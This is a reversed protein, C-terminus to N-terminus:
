FSVLVRYFGNTQNAPVADYGENGIVWAAEPATLWAADTLNTKYQVQYSRGLEAPWDLDLVGGGPAAASLKFVSNPDLPNLGAIYKQLNSMGTGDADDSALSDDGAEGTPHGFYKIMWWDPIGDGDSDVLAANVDVPADFADPTRNLVGPTLDSGVNLFAVTAGGDSIVPRSMWAVPGPLTTGTTLLTTSGTLRDFLFVNPPAASDGIAANVVTSRYAVFRGDGSIAPTDSLLGPVNTASGALGILSLTGTQFDRLYVKNIGDDGPGINATSLFALWRGDDSWSAGNALPAQTNMSFLNTGSDIDDVCLEYGGYATNATEYFIKTGMPDILATLIMNTNSYIDTGSQMDRIRLGNTSSYALYRGDDGLSPKFVGAGPLGVTQGLSVDRWYTNTGAPMGPALNGAQSLFAVYRGDPSIVPEYSDGNGSVGNTAVSVLLTPGNAIRLFVNNYSSAVGAVLNTASSVFAVTVGNTSIVASGSNGGLAYGGNYSASVLFNTGNVLDRIFVDRLRNTDDPVLDDAPSSFTVWRGDASVSQSSLSSFGDPAALAVNANRESVMKTTEAVTDRVFVDDAQNNDGAVLGGDPSSFAVLQGDASLSLSTMTEDISGAGNTDADVLQTTSSQLNRLYIHFDNTPTTITNAVLNTADSLFAVFQGNTSILPMEATTNTPVGSGDGSVLTNAGTQADWVYVSSCGSNAAGEHQVYAVFRGDPTMVPGGSDDYGIYGGVVNTSVVTTTGALTDYRLIMAVGDPGIRGAKFVVYRGDDSLRPRYAPVGSLGLTASALAAANTSAWITSGTLLDRVYIEGQSTAPVSPVLDKASSFFAVYRGDPTIVPTAMVPNTTDGSAVANASLLYNTRAILDRVFVDPIGNTDSPVLNSASSIFAVYRGDPTMVPDTSYGNASGGNTSVSVLTTTGAALDRVFIDTANNTDNLALDDADSQFVVFQGNTSAQGSMSGRNGGGTDSLNESVLVTTNSARDRLFVNLSYYNNGGPMLDNATSAFVVFWGDSTLNPDVSDGDGGAPPPLASSRASLLQPPGAQALSVFMVVALFCNVRLSVYTQMRGCLSRWRFSRSSTLALM